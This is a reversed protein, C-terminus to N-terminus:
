SGRGGVAHSGSPRNGPPRSQWYAILLIIANTLLLAAGIWAVNTVTQPLAANIYEPVKAWDAALRGGEFSALQEHDIVGALDLARYSSWSMARGAGAMLHGLVVVAVAALIDFAALVAMWHPRRTM